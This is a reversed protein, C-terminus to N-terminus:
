AELRQKILSELEDESITVKVPNEKTIYTYMRQRTVEKQNKMINLKVELTLSNSCSKLVKQMLGSFRFETDFITVKYCISNIKKLGM